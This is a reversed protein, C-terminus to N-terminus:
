RVVSFRGTKITTADKMEARLRYFYSGSPFSTGSLQLGRGAGAAVQAERVLLRRGLMDYVEVTVAAEAPLDFSIRTAHTFPNPYNGGLSFADPVSAPQVTGATGAVAVPSLREDGRHAAVPTLRSSLAVTSAAADLSRFRVAFLVHEDPHTHGRGAPDTWVTSLLGDAARHTGFNQGSLGEVGFQEVGRFALAEPDWEMTFQYGGINEFRDARLLVVVEGAPAPQSEVSLELSSGGAAKALLQAAKATPDWSGDVDGKHFCFFDQGSQEDALPTFAYETEYGLPDLTAAGTVPCGWLGGNFTSTLGLIFQRMLSIDNIDVGENGDVDAANMKYSSTIPAITLIHRRTISLDNVNVSNASSADSPM